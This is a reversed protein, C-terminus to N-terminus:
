FAHGVRRGDRLTAAGCAKPHSRGEAQAARRQAHLEEDLRGVDEQSLPSYDGSLIQHWCKTRRSDCLHRLLRYRQVFNTGCALCVADVPVFFRQQARAEKHSAMSAINLSLEARM